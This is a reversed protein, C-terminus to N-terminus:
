GPSKTRANQGGILDVCPIREGRLYKEATYRCGSPHVDRPWEAIHRLGETLRDIEEVAWELHAWAVGVPSGWKLNKDELIFKIRDLKTGPYANTADDM